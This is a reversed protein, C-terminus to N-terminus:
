DANDSQVRKAKLVRVMRWVVAVALALSAFLGASWARGFFRAQEHVGPGAAATAAWGFFLVSYACYAAFGLVVFLIISYKIVRSNAFSGLEGM